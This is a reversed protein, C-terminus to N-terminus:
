KLLANVEVRCRNLQEHLDTDLAMVFHGFSRREYLNPYWCELALDGQADVYTRVFAAEANIRNSLALLGARDQRGGAGASFVKRFLVGGRFDKLLWSFRGPQSVFICDGEREIAYGLFQLHNRAEELVSDAVIVSSAVCTQLQSPLAM